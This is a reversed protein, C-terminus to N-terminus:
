CATPLMAHRWTRFSTLCPPSGTRTPQWAPRWLRSGRSWAQLDAANGPLPCCYPQMLRTPTLCGPAG